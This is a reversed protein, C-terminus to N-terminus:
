LNKESFFHEIKKNLSSKTEAKMEIQNGPTLRCIQNLTLYKLGLDTELYKEMECKGQSGGSEGVDINEVL